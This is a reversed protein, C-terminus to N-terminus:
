RVRPSKAISLEGRLQALWERVRGVVDAHDPVKGVVRYRDAELSERLASLRRDIATLFRSTQADDLDHRILQVQGQTRHRDLSVLREREAKLLRANDYARRLRNTSDFQYVPEAGFYISGAGNARFGIVINDDFGEVCLEVREVMATAEALVDERDREDRAM